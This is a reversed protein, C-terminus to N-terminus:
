IRGKLFPIKLPTSTIIEMITLSPAVVGISVRIRQPPTM